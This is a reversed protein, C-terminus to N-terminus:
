YGYGGGAPASSSTSPPAPPATHTPQTTPAASHVPPASTHTPEVSHEPEPETEHATTPETVAAPARSTTVAAHPTTPASSAPSGAAGTIAAGSAAVEWWKAGFSDSGQGVAAGPAKDGEFYYLPHGRYTVQRSGDSRTTTGLDAALAGGVASAPGTSLVPPWVTACAGACTSTSATDAVWLYLTRGSSDSLHGGTVTIAVSHGAASTSGSAAASPDKGAATSASSACGSVLAAVAAAAGVSMAISTRSFMSM